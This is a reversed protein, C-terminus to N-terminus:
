RSPRSESDVKAQQGDPGSNLLGDPLLARSNMNKSFATGELTQSAGTGGPQPFLSFSLILGPLYSHPYPLLFLQAKGGRNKHLILGM